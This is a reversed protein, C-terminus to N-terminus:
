HLTAHRQMLFARRSANQQLACARVRELLNEAMHFLTETSPDPTLFLTQGNAAATATDVSSAAVSEPVFQGQRRYVAM